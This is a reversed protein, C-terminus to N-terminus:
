CGSLLPNLHGMKLIYVVDVVGQKKVERVIILYCNAIMMLLGFLTTVHLHLLTVCYLYNHEIHVHKNKKIQKNQNKKGCFHLFLVVSKSVKNVFKYKNFNETRTPWRWRNPSIKTNVQQIYTRAETCNQQTNSQRFTATKIQIKHSLFWSSHLNHQKFRTLCPVPACRTLKSTQPM